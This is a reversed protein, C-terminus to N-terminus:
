HAARFNPNFKTRIGFYRMALPSIEDSAVAM